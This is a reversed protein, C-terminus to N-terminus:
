PQPLDASCGLQAFLARWQERSRPGLESRREGDPTVILNAPLGRAGVAKRWVRGGPDRLSELAIAHRALYGRIEDPEEDVDVVAIELADACAARALALAPLEDACSPCWTAWFHVVLARGAAPALAVREGALTELQEHRDALGHLMRMVLPDDM